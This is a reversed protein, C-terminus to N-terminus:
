RRRGQTAKIATVPAINTAPSADAQAGVAAAFDELVQQTVRPEFSQQQLGARDSARGSGLRCAPATETVPNSRVAGADGQSHREPSGVAGAGFGSDDEGSRRESCARPSDITAGVTPIRGATM